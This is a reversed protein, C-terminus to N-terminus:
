SVGGSIEGRKNTESGITGRARIWDTDRPPPSVGENADISGAGILLNSYIQLERQVITNKGTLAYAIHAALLHSFTSVFAGSYLNVSKQDFTYVCVADEENTLITKEHGDLSLEIEFPLADDPPANPNQIKRVALCNAPYQYRFGWVGALPTNSTTPITDSHLALQTRLRAFSWDYAALIQLRSFDYWLSCEKAEPSAESLSEIHSKTGVHSLAMNAIRTESIQPPM